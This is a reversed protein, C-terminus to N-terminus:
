RVVPLAERGSGSMRTPMGVVGPFGPPGESWKRVDPLAERGSESMRSTRKPMWSTRGDMQAPILVVGPCRPPGRAVGLCKPPVGWWERVDLLAERGSRFMRAPSVVVGPCGPPGGSREQVDPLAERGSGSM